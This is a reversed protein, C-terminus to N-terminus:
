DCCSEELKSRVCDVVNSLTEFDEIDDESIEIDFLEELAMFLFETNEFDVLASEQSISSPAVGSDEYLIEQIEKFITQRSVSFLAVKEKRRMDEIKEKIENTISKHLSLIKRMPNNNEGFLKDGAVTLVCMTKIAYLEQEEESLSEYLLRDSRYVCDEAGGGCMLVSVTDESINIKYTFNEPTAREFRKKFETETIDMLELYEDNFEELMKGYLRSEEEEEQMLGAVEKVLPRFLQITESLADDMTKGSVEFNREGKLYTFLDIFAIAFASAFSEVIDALSKESDDPKVVSTYSSGHMEVSIKM